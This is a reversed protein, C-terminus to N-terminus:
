SLGRGDQGAPERAIRSGAGLRRADRQGARSDEDRARPEDRNSMKQKARTHLGERRRQEEEEVERMKM